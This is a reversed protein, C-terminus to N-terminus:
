LITFGAQALDYVICLYSFRCYRGILRTMCKFVEALKELNCRKMETMFIQFMLKIKSKGNKKLHIVGSFHM